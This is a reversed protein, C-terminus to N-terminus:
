DGILRIIKSNFVNNYSTFGGGVLIKNDNQLAIAITSNNFKSGYYSFSSDVSGDTNLRIIYNSTIGRYSTFGGTAIIKGNNDIVVQNLGSNFVGDIFSFDRSGDINLRVLCVAQAGNYSTFFGCAIIKGDTQTNIGIISGLDFGTGINFSSDVSGDTNLRIIRNSTIGSYSTFQGGVLIKGDSQLKLILVLRNFGTGINFSSDVSGDTNLRIIGNSTIGSYSAFFGGVLIKDDSQIDISRISLLYSGNLTTGSFGTGINFSTDKSGDTNLRIIGNSTTGSYSTFSGGILIKGDSQLKFKFVDNNFGTGINFSTDKSGDTNLRIIRNSTTGSYTTFAGGVLIKGDSQIGFSYIADNFGTGIKFSLDPYSPLIAPNIGIITDGNIITNGNIVVSM